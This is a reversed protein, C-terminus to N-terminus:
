VVYDGMFMDYEIDFDRLDGDDEDDEGMGDM